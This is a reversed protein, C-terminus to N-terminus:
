VELVAASIAAIKNDVYSKTDVTYTLEMNCGGTNTVETTGAYMTLANLKDQESPSLPISEPTSSKCMFRLPHNGLWEKWQEPTTIQTNPMRFYRSLSSPHDGYIGYSNKNDTGWVYSKNLYKDCITSQLGPLTNAFYTTFVIGTSELNGYRNWTETGNLEFETTQYVWCWVGDVKELKDWKTMPKPPSLTISQQETGGKITVTVPQDTIEIPQEWDPSPSPFGGSYPEYATASSGYELQIDYFEASMTGNNIDFRLYVMDGEAIDFTTWGKNGTSSYGSSGDNKKIIAFAEVTKSEHATGMPMNSKFSLTYKGPNLKLLDDTKNLCFFVVEATTVGKGELIIKGDVVSAKLNNNNIEYKKLSSIDLLNRGSTRVQETKGWMAFRVVPVRLSDTVKIGEGSIKQSILASQINVLKANLREEMNRIYTGTDAVYSAEMHAGADNTIVTTPHNTHLSSYAAIEEPTLDREIPTALEGVVVVPFSLSNLKANLEEATIETGKPPSFYIANGNLAFAYKDNVPAGWSTFSAINCLSKKSANSFINTFKDYHFFRGKTDSSPKLRWGDNNKEIAVRQVYKGRGLDVEDCVWQQGNQDTYNGDKDVPVGPLGNPTSIALSQPKRYPEYPLVTKGKNVQINRITGSDNTNASIYFRVVSNLAEDTIVISTRYEWMKKIATLYIKHANGSNIADLIYTEGVKLQPCLEKLTKNTSISSDNPSSAMTLAGNNNKKIGYSGNWTEEIKNVDFLNRGTVEVKISGGEGANVIPVPSEPSPTGDQTSKGFVRLGEFLKDSSDTLTMTEGQATEVIADAKKQYLTAIERGTVQADAAQGSETLTPDTKTQADGLEVNGDAGVVLAKGANDAGQQKDVKGEIAQKNAAIQERDAVIGAAADQVRKTQTDGETTVAQVAETKAEAVGSVAQTGAQQVATTQRQGEASVAGVADSQAQGVADLANQAAQGFQLVTNEVARRDAAVAQRDTDVEERMQEVLRHTESVETRDREVEEMASEAGAEAREAAKQAEKAATSSREAAQAAEAANQANQTTETVMRSVAQKDKAVAEADQKVQKAIEGAGTIEGEIKGAAEEAAKQAAEAGERAAEARDASANVAEIADRFIEADGPADFAEPKPRCKVQMSIRKITEGSIKDALYIWAYIEYTAGAAQHELLSEPIVVETVGDKTTGVRTIADGSQETLAFHIEVATPLKLGEIRLRQGYDWQWLGTARAYDSNDTFVATIM